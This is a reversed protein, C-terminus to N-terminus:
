SKKMKGKLPHYRMTVASELRESAKVFEGGAELLRIEDEFRRMQLIDKDAQM